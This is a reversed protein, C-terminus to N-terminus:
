WSIWAWSRLGKLMVTHWSYIPFTSHHLVVWQLSLVQTVAGENSFLHVTGTNRKFFPMHLGEKQCTTAYPITCRINLTFLWTEWMPRCTQSSKEKLVILVSSCWLFLFNKHGLTPINWSSILLICKELGAFCGILWLPYLWFTVPALIVKATM